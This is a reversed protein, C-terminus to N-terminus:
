HGSRDPAPSRGEIQKIKLYVLLALFLIFFLSIALGKRRFGLEALAQEGAQYSKRAVELGPGVVKEVEDTSFAHILVRANTLSDRAESLEFKARSVELGAREARNLIELARHSSARLEDMLRRMRDAAQFGGDGPIHCGACTAEQGTGIMEDRPPLIEHNSHCQLCEGIQLTDFVAKHPSAQFLTSQRVHCQGCVNAVSTVGPPAAGHNGHCDNCTPASLDQRQYLATAHVSNKYKGYQDHPVKYARRYDANAHCKACTEAVNPPYVAALPDKIARIGHTGHCSICTAVKQDGAKLRKGHVSTFYEREQDVRLAPNFQKILDANSHCKGCFAPVDKPRPRAIFGKRPDMSRLPDDQTADGGHCDVCSLGRARHIDDKMLQVPKALDGEIQSHCDLCSDKKQAAALGALLLLLPLALFLRRLRFRLSTAAPAAGGQTGLRTLTEPSRIAVDAQPQTM